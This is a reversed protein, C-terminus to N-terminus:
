PRVLVKGGSPYQRLARLRKPAEELLVTETVLPVYRDPDTALVSVAAPLEDAFSSCGVLARSARALDAPVLQVSEHGLAVLVIAGSEAAEIAERLSRESHGTDIVLPYGPPPTAGDDLDAGFASALLGREALPERVSVKMRPFQRTLEAHVLAGITSYGIVLARDPDGTSWARGRGFIDPLSGGSRDDLAAAAQSVVHMAMALPESLAAVAPDLAPSCTILSRVPVVLHQAFGGHLAEGLWALADCVGASQACGTCCGCPIRSDAVVPTGPPLEAGPCLEVVGSVEHGPTAPWYSIRRGACLLHLDSECVGAFEVRVLAEGDSPCPLDRHGVSLKLSRDLLLARTKM